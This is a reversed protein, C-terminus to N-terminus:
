VELFGSFVASTSSSKFYCYTADAARSVTLPVMQNGSESLRMVPIFRAPIAGIDHKVSFETNAVSATTSEIPYWQANEARAGDGLRWNDSLYYLASRIPYRIQEPLANIYIDLAGKTAV